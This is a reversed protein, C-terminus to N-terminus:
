TARFESEFHRSRASRKQLRQAAKEVYSDMEALADNLQDVISLEDDSSSSLIRRVTEGSALPRDALELLGTRHERTPLSALVQKLASIRAQRGRRPEVGELWGYLAKRTVGFLEALASVSVDSEAKIWGLDAVWRGSGDDLEDSPTQTAFSVKGGSVSVWAKGDHPASSASAASVVGGSAAINMMAALSAGLILGSTARTVAPNPLLIHQSSLGLSRKDGASALLIVASM